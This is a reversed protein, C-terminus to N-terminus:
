LILTEGSPELSTYAKLYLDSGSQTKLAYVLKSGDPSVSMSHVSNLSNLKEVTFAEKTTEKAQAVTIVTGTLLSLAFVKKMKIGKKNRM